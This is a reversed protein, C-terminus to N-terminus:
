CTKSMRLGPMYKYRWKMGYGMRQALPSNIIARLQFPDGALVINATISGMESCVGAIPILASAEDASGCEDIFVYTFHRPCKRPLAAQALRGAVVLTCVLIQVKQLSDLAPYFADGDDVNSSRRINDEINMVNAM